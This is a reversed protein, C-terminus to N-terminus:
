YAADILSQGRPNLLLGPGLRNMTYGFSMRKAPDAFGISGGAGVHGFAEESLIASELGLARNDMSKMFGLAFRTPILLTADEHTAMSIRGMERATKASVLKGGDNALPAYMGALGRANTFGNAAGIEAAREVRSAFGGALQSGADRMFLGAISGKQNIVADLFPSLPSGAPHRYAQIDAVREDMEAPLGIWFDLGLPAAIEDQFFTGLSKGSKRRVLEGVTWGFNLGHYGNRTGPKWFAEEAALRDVMYDWDLIGHPKLPERFVPVAASHDLMMAVTVNEKGAQAFEPWIEAVPTELNFAGQDILIHACLATAGKTSSYVIVLTDEEWVDGSKSKTGGWLDVVKEGEVTIAVAAGLEGREAFNAQFEDAVQQFRADCHGNVAVEAM